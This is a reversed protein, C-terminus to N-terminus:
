GELIFSIRYSSVMPMGCSFGMPIGMIIGVPIGLIVGVPIGVPIVEVEQEM